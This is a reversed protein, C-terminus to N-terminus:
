FLELNSLLSQIPNTFASCQSAHWLKSTRIPFDCIEYFFINNKRRMRFYKDLKNPSKNM